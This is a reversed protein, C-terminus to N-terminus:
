FSMFVEQRGNEEFSIVDYKEVRDGEMGPSGMPMGPVAIGKINPKSSLLKRLARAPVHGEVVYGAVKATHCSALDPTVGNEVKVASVDDMMVSEVQFGSNTLHKVWKQCCGCSRSQYVTIKESSQIESQTRRYILGALLILPLTFLIIKKKL